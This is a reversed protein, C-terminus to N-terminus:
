VWLITNIDKDLFRSYEFIKEEINRRDEKFYKEFMNIEISITHKEIMRKWIGKVIGNKLIVPRFIGNSSVASKLKGTDIVASRDKYSILYEDYAPIILYPNDYGGFEHEPCMWYIHNNVELREIKDKITEMTNKVEKISLGSWWTFDEITAPGHSRFYQVALKAMAVTKNIKGPDPIHNNILVYSHKKNVIRGGCIIGDLEALMLIHATRNNNLAINEIKFAEVINERTAYGNVSITKIIISHSKKLLADNIELQKHRSAAILKIRPASFSLFAHLDKSSVFHWTPRLIHTRTIKGLNIAQDIDQMISDNLRMGMAWKAMNLDQAQVAGKWEVLDEPASFKKSLLQHNYLRIQAINM